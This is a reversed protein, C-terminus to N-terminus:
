ANKIEAEGVAAYGEPCLRSLDVWMILADEGTDMYYGPRIGEVTFGFKEYMKQAPLNSRRVELTARRAGEWRCRRIAEELLRSAIRKRRMDRRVAVNHLHVEDDVRWYVIYGWVGGIVRKATRGVLIRSIPSTIENRFINESWPTPYSDNEIAIIEVIDGEEYEGIKLADDDM